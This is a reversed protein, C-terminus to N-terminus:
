AVIEGAAIAEARIAARNALLEAPTMTALVADTFGAAPPPGSRPVIGGNVSGPVPKPAPAAAPTVAPTGAAAPTGEPTAVAAVERPVFVARLTVPPAEKVVALYEDFTGAKDAGMTAVRKDYRRGIDDMVEPDMADPSLNNTFVFQQLAIQRGQMALQARLGTAENAAVLAADLKAQLADIREKVKPSDAVPAAVAPTKETIAM